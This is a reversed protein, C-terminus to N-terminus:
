FTYQLGVAAVNNTYLANNATYENNDLLNIKYDVYANMNANFNYTLALDVYKSYDQNGQYGNPHRLWGQAYAISPTLGNEFNYQAVAFVAQSTAASDLEGANLSDAGVTFPLQNKTESYNIAAYINNADYKAGVSWMQANKDNLGRLADKQNDSKRANNYAAGLTIGMDTDYSMSVGYGNGNESVVSYGDNGSYSDNTGLYQLGLNFGNWSNRY